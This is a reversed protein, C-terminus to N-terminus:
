ACVEARRRHREVWARYGESAVLFGSELLDEARHYERFGPRYLTLQPRAELVRRYHRFVEAAGYHQKRQLEEEVHEAFRGTYKYHRFVGTVDAIHAGTVFHVNYPFVRLSGPRVLPQKTLMSGRYGFVTEWIGGTHSCIEEAGIRNQRLWFVDRVRRIDSLDYWRHTEELPRDPNAALEALSERPVIELNQVTVADYGNVRLYALFHRLPLQSSFPYDFLEDMDAVLAWGAGAFRRVLWRKVANEYRRFPLATRYLTVGEAARALEPTGDTSGNDVLVIHRAGLRRYHRVFTPLHVAGNRVLCLVVLEDPALAIDTPGHVHEIGLGAATRADLALARVANRVRRAELSARHAVPRVPRPVWQHLKRGGIRM